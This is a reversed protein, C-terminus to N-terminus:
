PQVGSSSDLRIRSEAPSALECNADSSRASFLGVRWRSFFLLLFIEIRSLYSWSLSLPTVLKGCNVLSTPM